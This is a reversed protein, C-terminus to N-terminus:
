GHDCRRRLYESKTTRRQASARGGTGPITSSRMNTSPLSSRGTAHAPASQVGVLRQLSDHADQGQSRLLAGAHVLRASTPTAFPRGSISDRGHLQIGAEEEVHAAAHVVKSSSNATVVKRASPTGSSTDPRLPEKEGLGSSHSREGDAVDDAARALQASSIPESLSSMDSEGDQDNTPSIRGPTVKLLPSSCVQSTKRPSALLGLDAAIRLSDEQAYRQSEAFEDLDKQASVNGSTILINRTPTHLRRDNYQARLEQYQASVRTIEDTMMAVEAALRGREQEGDHVALLLGDRECVAVIHAQELEATSTLLESHKTFIGQLSAAATEIQTHKDALAAEQTHHLDHLRANDHLLCERLDKISDIITMGQREYDAKSEIQKGDVLDHTFLRLQSHGDRILQQMNQDRSESKNHLSSLEQSLAGQSGLIRKACSNLGSVYERLASQLCSQEQKLASVALVMQRDNAQRAECSKMHSTHLATSRDLLQLAGLEKDKSEVLQGSVESLKSQLQSNVASVDKLQAAYDRNLALSQELKHNLTGLTISTRGSDPEYAATERVFDDILLHYRLREDNMSDLSGTFETLTLTVRASLDRLNQKELEHAQLMEQQAQKSARLLDEVEMLRRTTAGIQEALALKQAQINAHATARSQLATHLRRNEAISESEFRKKFLSELPGLALSIEHNDGFTPSAHQEVISHHTTDSYRDIAGGLQGDPIAPLGKVHAYMAAQPESRAQSHAVCSSTKRKESELAQTPQPEPSRVQEHPATQMVGARASERSRRSQTGVNQSTSLIAQQRAPRYIRNAHTVSQHTTTDIPISAWEPGVVGQEQDLLSVPGRGIMSTATATVNPGDNAASPSRDRRVSDHEQDASEHIVANQNVPFATSKSPGMSTGLGRAGADASALTTRRAKYVFPSAEDDEVPRQRKLIKEKGHDDHSGTSTEVRLRALLAADQEELDADSSTAIM